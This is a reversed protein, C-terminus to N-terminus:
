ITGGQPSAAFFPSADAANRIVQEIFVDENCVLVIGVIQASARTSM